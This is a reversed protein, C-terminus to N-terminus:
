LYIALPVCMDCCLSPGSSLPQQQQQVHHEIHCLIATLMSGVCRLSMFTAPVYCGIQAMVVLLAVQLLLQLCCVM